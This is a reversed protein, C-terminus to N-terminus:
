PLPPPPPRSALVNLRRDARLVPTAFVVLPWRDAESLFLWYFAKQLLELSGTYGATM